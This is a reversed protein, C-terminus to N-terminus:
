AVSLELIAAALRELTHDTVSSGATITGVMFISGPVSAGVDTHDPDAVRVATVALLMDEIVYETLLPARQGTVLTGIATGATV